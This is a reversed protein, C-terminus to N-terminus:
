DHWPQATALKTTLPPDLPPARPARGWGRIKLGLHPGFPRLFNKQPLAGKDWPRSSWGGRGGGGKDSPRSEGRTTTIISRVYVFHKTSSTIYSWKCRFGQLKQEKHGTSRLISYQGKTHDAWLDRFSKQVRGGGTAPGCLFRSEIPPQVDSALPLRQQHRLIHLERIISLM